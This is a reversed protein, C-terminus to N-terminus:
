LNFPKLNLQLFAEDLYDKNEKLFRKEEDIDRYKDPLMRPITDIIPYWRQCKECFLIGRKIEADVKIKNLLYLDPLISNIELYNHNESFELINKKVKSNLLKLCEKSNQNSSRDEINELEKISSIIAKLYDKIFIKELVIQDKIKEGNKSIQILNEQNIKKYDRSNFTELFSEFEIKGEVYSFIFLKLPFYKDIPCALIDFLWLKM